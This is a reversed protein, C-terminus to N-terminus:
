KHNDNEIDKIQKAAMLWFVARPKFIRTVESDLEKNYEEISKELRAIYEDLTEEKDYKSIKDM